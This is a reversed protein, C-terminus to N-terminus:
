CQLPTPFRPLYPYRSLFPPKPPIIKLHQDSLLGPDVPIRAGQSISDLSVLVM